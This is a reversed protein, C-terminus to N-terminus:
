LVALAQKESLQNWQHDSKKAGRREAHHCEVNHGRVVSPVFVSQRGVRLMNDKQISLISVRPMIDSLM